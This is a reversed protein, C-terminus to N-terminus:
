DDKKTDGSGELNKCTEQLTSHEDLLRDYERNTSEAQKRMADLDKNAKTLQDKLQAMEKENVAEIAKKASGEEKENSKNDKEEMLQKAVANASEAQKKMTACNAELSATRSISTVLRRLIVFMASAFICIYYNRQARFMKMNYVAEAMPNNAFNPVDMHPAHYKWMERVADIFLVVLVVIFINFYLNAYGTLFGLIKSKFVKQWRSASIFPLM